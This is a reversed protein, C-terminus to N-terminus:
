SERRLFLNCNFASSSATNRSSEAKGSKKEKTKPNMGEGRASVLTKNRLRDRGNPGHRPKDNM